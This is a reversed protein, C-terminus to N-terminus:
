TKTDIKMTKLAYLHMINPITKDARLTMTPKMKLDKITLNTNYKANNKTVVSNIAIRVGMSGFAAFKFPANEPIVTPIHYKKSKNANLWPKGNTMEANTVRNMM